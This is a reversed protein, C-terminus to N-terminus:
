RYTKAADHWVGKGDIEVLRDAQERQGLADQQRVRGHWQVDEFRAVSRHGFIREVGVPEDGHGGELAVRVLCVVFARWRDAGGDADSSRRLRRRDSSSM